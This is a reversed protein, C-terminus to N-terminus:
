GREFGEKCLPACPLLWFTLEELLHVASRRLFYAKAAPYPLLSEPHQVPPSFFFAESSYLRRTPFIHLSCIERRSFCCGKVSPSSQKSIELRTHSVQRYMGPVASFVYQLFHKRSMFPSSDLLRQSPWLKSQSM